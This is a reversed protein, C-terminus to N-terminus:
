VPHKVPYSDNQMLSLIGGFIAGIAMHMKHQDEICIFSSDVCVLLGAWKSEMCVEVDTNIEYQMAKQLLWGHKPRFLNVPQLHDADLIELMGTIHIDTVDPGSAVSGISM